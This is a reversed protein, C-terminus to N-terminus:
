RRTTLVSAYVGSLDRPTTISLVRHSQGKAAAPLKACDRSPGVLVGAAQRITLRALLRQRWTAPAPDRLWGRADWVVPVEALSGALAAVVASGLGCAHVIDPRLRRLRVAFRLVDLVPRVVGRSLARRRRAAISSRALCEFSTGPPAPSPSRSPAHRLVVHADLTGDPNPFGHARGHEPEPLEDLYVVRLPGPRVGRCARRYLELHADATASWSFREAYARCAERDPLPSRGTLAACIRGGLAAPDGPPVVLDPALAGLVEPIGGVDTGIVPTGSALSELIVLGFGELALSPVVVVDAAAYYSALDDDSLRGAFRVSSEVGMGRARDELEERSSGSGGIVLLADKRAAMVAPWAELLVDLGMRPVIRRITLVIPSREPLGLRARAQARREPRYRELDVGPALVSISWPAVGYQEVLVRKFAHSLVAIRDARRYVARELLWKARLRRRSAEGEARSEEAWPGHFHVVLPLRRLPGLVPALAYLAFHADVVDVDRKARRAVEIFARLRRLIPAESPAIVEVGEVPDTAPGLVALTPTVLPLLAEHLERAYRNLGGPSDPFWGEGLSLLRLRDGVPASPPVARPDGM